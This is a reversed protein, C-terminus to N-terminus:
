RPSTARAPVSRGWCSAWSRRGSALALLQDEWQALLAPLAEFLEQTQGVLPPVILYGIGVLALATGLLAIVIGFSRPIRMRQQLADTIAGLYLSFLIGIFFLLLIEAISYLFLLLLLAFFAAVLVGYPRRTM